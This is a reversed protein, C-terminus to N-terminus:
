SSLRAGILHVPLQYRRQMLAAFARVPAALEHERQDLREPLGVVLAQPRRAAILEDVRVWEPEGATVALTALPRASATITQGVAVGLRREGYDFGLVAGGASM